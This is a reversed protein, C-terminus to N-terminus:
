EIVDDNDDERVYLMHVYNGLPYRVQLFPPIREKRITLLVARAPPYKWGIRSQERIVRKNNDRIM